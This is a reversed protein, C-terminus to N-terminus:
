QYAWTKENNENSDKTYLRFFMLLVQILMNLILGLAIVQLVFLLVNCVFAAVVPFFIMATIVALVFMFINTSM